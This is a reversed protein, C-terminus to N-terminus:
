TQERKRIPIQKLGHKLYWKNNKRFMYGKKELGELQRQVSSHRAYGLYEAATKMTPVKGTEQFYDEYFWLVVRQIPTIGKGMTDRAEKLRQQWLNSM